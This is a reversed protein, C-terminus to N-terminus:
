KEPDAKKKKKPRMSKWIEKTMRSLTPVTFWLAVIVVCAVCLWSCFGDLVRDATDVALAAKLTSM